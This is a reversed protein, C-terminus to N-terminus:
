ATTDLLRGTADPDQELEEQERKKREREKRAREQSSDKEKKAKLRESEEFQQVTTSKERDNIEQQAAIQEPSPKATQSQNSLEQAAGSQQIVLNHGPVTTM